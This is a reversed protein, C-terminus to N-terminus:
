RILYGAPVDHLGNRIVSAKFGNQSLLFAAVSSRRGTGCYCIYPTDRDLEPMHQRIDMLPINISGPLHGQQYEASVRVDIMQAEQTLAQDVDIWNLLPERLLEVFDAKALRLLIGDTLMVVNANRPNDSILAEEGFGSGPGLQVLEAAPCGDHSRTVSVRGSEILYFYDGADGQCIILDGQKVPARQMRALAHEINAAPLQQFAPSSSLRNLWGSSANGTNSDQPTAADQRGSAMQDWTLLTDLHEPDVRIIEIDGLATASAQRPSRPELPQWSAPMGASIIHTHGALAHTLEVQGDLLYILHRDDDGESFLRDGGTLHEVETSRALEGLKGPSLSSLPELGRLVDVDVTDRKLAENLSPPIPPM